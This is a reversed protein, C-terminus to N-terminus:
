TEDIWCHYFYVVKEISYGCQTYLHCAAHNNGQTVVRSHHCGKQTAWSLAWHVLRRGLGMRRFSPHVALLGIQAVEGDQKLTIMGSIVEARSLVWVEDAWQRHISQHIWHKYLREFQERPFRPDVSFRSYEGSLVGLAELDSIPISANYSELRDTSEVPNSADWTRLDISFTTKRDVLSVRAGPISTDELPTDSAWYALSVGQLRLEALIDALETASLTPSMIQAVQIGFFESDWELQRVNM